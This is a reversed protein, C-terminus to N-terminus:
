RFLQARIKSNLTESRQIRDESPQENKESFIECQNTLGCADVIKPAKKETFNVGKRNM